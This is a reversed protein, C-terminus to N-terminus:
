MPLNDGTFDDSVASSKSRYSNKNGGFNDPPTYTDVMISAVLKSFLNAWAKAYKCSLEGEDVPTQDKNRFTHWDDPLFPFKIKPRNESVISIYMKGKKDKGIITTSLKVKEGGRMTFNDIAKLNDAPGDILEYLMEIMTFFALPNMPASLKGNDPDNPINTFVDLRPNNNIVGVSLGAEKTQGEQLPAFLRLKWFNLITKPLPKFNKESM